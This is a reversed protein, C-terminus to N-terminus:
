SRPRDHRDDPTAHIHCLGVIPQHGREVFAPLLMLFLTSYNSVTSVGGSEVKSVFVFM